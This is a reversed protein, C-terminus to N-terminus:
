SVIFRRWRTCKRTVCLCCVKIISSLIFVQQIYIISLVNRAQNVYNQRDGKTPLGTPSLFLLTKFSIKLLHSFSQFLHLLFFSTAFTRTEPFHKFGPGRLTCKWYETAFILINSCFVSMMLNQSKQATVACSYEMLLLCPYNGFFLLHHTWRFYSTLNWQGSARISFGTNNLKLAAMAFSSEGALYINLQEKSSVSTSHKNKIVSTRQFQVSITNPTNQWCAEGLIELYM